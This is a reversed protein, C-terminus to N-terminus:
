CISALIIRCPLFEMHKVPLGLSDREVISLLLRSFARKCQNLQREPGEDREKQGGPISLAEPSPGPLQFFIPPCFTLNLDLPWFFQGFFTVVAGSGGWFHLTASSIERTFELTSVASGCAASSWPKSAICGKLSPALSYDAMKGTACAPALRPLPVLFDSARFHVITFARRKEFLGGTEHLGM